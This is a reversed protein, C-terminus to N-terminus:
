INAIKNQSMRDFDSKINYQGPAPSLRATNKVMPGKPSDCVPKLYNDKQTSSVFATMRRPTQYLSYSKTNKHTSLQYFGKKNINDVPQYFGPGPNM